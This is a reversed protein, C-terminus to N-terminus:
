QKQKIISPNPDPDAFLGYGSGYTGRVVPDPLDLFESLSRLDPDSVSIGTTTQRARGWHAHPAQRPGTPRLRTRGRGNPPQWASGAVGGVGGRGAVPSINVDLARTRRWRIFPRWESEAVGGPLTTSVSGSMKNLGPWSGIYTKRIRWFLYRLKSAADQYNFCLFVPLYRYWPPNVVRIEDGLKVVAPDPNRAILSLNCQCFSCTGNLTTLNNKVSIWYVYRWIYRFCITWISPSANTRLFSSGTLVARGGTDLRGSWFLSYIMNLFNRQSFFVQFIKVPFVYWVPLPSVFCPKPDANMEHPDPDLMKELQTDMTKFVLFELFKVVSFKKKM